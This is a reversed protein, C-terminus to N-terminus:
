GALVVLAVNPLNQILIPVQKLAMRVASVDRVGTDAPQIPVNVAPFFHPFGAFDEAQEEIVRAPMHTDLIRDRVFVRGAPDAIFVSLDNLRPLM